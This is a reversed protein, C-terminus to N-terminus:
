AKVPSLSGWSEGLRDGQRVWKHRDERVYGRLKWWWTEWKYRVEVKLGEHGLICLEVKDRMTWSKRGHRRGTQKETDDVGRDIYETCAGKGVTIEWTERGRSLGRVTVQERSSQTDMGAQMSQKQVDWNVQPHSTKVALFCFLFMSYELGKHHLKLSLGLFLGLRSRQWWNTFAM